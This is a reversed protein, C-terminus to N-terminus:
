ARLPEPDSRSLSLLLELELSDDLEDSLLFVESLFFALVPVESEEM